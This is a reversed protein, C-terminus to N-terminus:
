LSGPPRDFAATRVDAGLPASAPTEPPHLAPAPAAPPRALRAYAELFVPEGVEWTYRDHAARAASRAMADRLGPTLAITEIAECISAPDREDVVLGARSEALIEKV